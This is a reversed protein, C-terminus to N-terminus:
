ASVKASAGKLLGLEGLVSLIKARSDARPPVM